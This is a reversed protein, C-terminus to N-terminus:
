DGTNSNAINDNSDDGNSSRGARDFVAVLLIIVGSLTWATVHFITLLTKWEMQSTRNVVAQYLYFAIFDTWLFSAVPFYIGLLAM